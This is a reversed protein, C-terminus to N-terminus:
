SNPWWLRDIVAQEYQQPSVDIWNPEEGERDLLLQYRDPVLPLPATHMAVSAMSRYVTGPLVRKDRVYGYKPGQHRLHRYMLWGMSAFLLALVVIAAWM